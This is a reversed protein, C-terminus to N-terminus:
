GYNLYNLKLSEDFSMKRIWTRSYNHQKSNSRKNEAHQTPYRTRWENKSRRLIKCSSLISSTKSIRCPSMKEIKTLMFKIKRQRPRKSAQTEENTKQKSNQIGTRWYRRRAEEKLSASELDKFWKFRLSKFHNELPSWKKRNKNQRYRKSAQTAITKQNSNRIGKADIGGRRKKLPLNVFIQWHHKVVFVIKSHRKFM